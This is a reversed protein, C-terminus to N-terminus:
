SAQKKDICLKVTDEEYLEKIIQFSIIHKITEIDYDGMKGPPARDDQDWRDVMNEIRQIGRIGQISM